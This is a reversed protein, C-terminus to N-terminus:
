IYEAIRLVSLVAGLVLATLAVAKYITRNILKIAVAQDALTLIKEKYPCDDAKQLKYVNQAHELNTVRGNQKRFLENTEKLQEAQQTLVHKYECLQNNINSLHINFERAAQKTAKDIERNVLEHIQNDDM